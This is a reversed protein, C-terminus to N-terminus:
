IHILSLYTVELVEYHGTNDKSVEKYTPNDTHGGSYGSITSIVGDVKDFPPEMCWFCGGAFIAKATAVNDAEESYATTLVAMMAIVLFLLVKSIKSKM